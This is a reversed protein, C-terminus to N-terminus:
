GKVKGKYELGLMTIDDAQDAGDTFRDIEGQVHKLLTTVDMERAVDANLTEELRLDSFLEERLNLAETM